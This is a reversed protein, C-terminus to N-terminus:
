TKLAEISPHQYHKSHLRISISDNGGGIRPPDTTMRPEDCTVAVPCHRCSSYPAGRDSGYCPPKPTRYSNELCKQDRSCHEREEPFCGNYYGFCFPRETAPKRDHTPHPAPPTNQETDTQFDTSNVELPRHQNRPDERAAYGEPHTSALYSAPAIDPADYHQKEANRM